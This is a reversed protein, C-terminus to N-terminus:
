HKQTVSHVLKKLKEIVKDSGDRVWVISPEPNSDISCKLTAEKGIEEPVDRPMSRFVPGYRVHITLSKKSSGIINSVQVLLM